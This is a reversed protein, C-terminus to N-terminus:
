VPAAAPWGTSPSAVPSSRAKTWSVEPVVPSGLAATTVWRARDDHRSSARWGAADAVAVDEGAPDGQVVIQPQDAEEERGDVEPQVRVEEGRRRGAEIGPQAGHRPHAGGEGAGGDSIAKVTSRAGIERRARAMAENLKAKEAPM